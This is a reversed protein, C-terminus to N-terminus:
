SVPKPSTCASPLISRGDSGIPEEFALDQKRGFLFLDSVPAQDDPRRLVSDVAIRLSSRLTIPDAPYWAAAHMACLVDDKAGVLGVNIADGPIGQATRTVMTLGALKHQHERGVCSVSRRDGIEVLPLAQDRRQEFVSALPDQGDVPLARRRLHPIEVDIGVQGFEIGRDVIQATTDMQDAQALARARLM